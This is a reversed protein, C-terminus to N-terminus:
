VFYQGDFNISILDSGLIATIIRLRKWHHNGMCTKCRM